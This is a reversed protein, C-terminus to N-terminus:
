EGMLWRAKKQQQVSLSNLIQQRYEISKTNLSVDYESTWTKAVTGAEMNNSHFSAWAKQHHMVEQFLKWRRKIDIKNLMKILPIGPIKEM